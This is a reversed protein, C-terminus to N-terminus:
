NKARLTEKQDYVPPEDAHPLNDNDWVKPQTMGDPHPSPIPIRLVPPDQKPVFVKVNVKAEPVPQYHTEVEVKTEKIVQVETPPRHEHWYGVGLAALTIFAAAVVFENFEVEIRLGKM